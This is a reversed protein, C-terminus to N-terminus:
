RNFEVFNAMSVILLSLLFNGWFMLFVCVIKGLTSVPYFDGYGVM